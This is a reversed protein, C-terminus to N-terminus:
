RGEPTENRIIIEPRGANSLTALWDRPKIGLLGTLYRAASFGDSGKVPFAGIKRYGGPAKPDKKWVTLDFVKM